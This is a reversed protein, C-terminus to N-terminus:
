FARSIQIAAPGLIVIFLAPMICMGLPFIMKVPLQHAKEEARFARKTRMEDAQIRLTKALPVGLKEAQRLSLVVHRLDDVGSRKGLADLAESRPTGLKVDQILRGFEQALVHDEKASIRSLAAEFGLGAEVSMTLQDLVDPLELIIEEKRRSAIASLILDPVFFLLLTVLASMGLQRPTPDGMFKLTGWLGAAVGLMLKSGVIQEPSWRGLLGAEGLNRDFRTLWAAPTFRRAREGTLRFIPLLVREAAPQELRIVRLDSPRQDGLNSVARESVVKNNSLSWWLLIVSASILASYIWIQLPM